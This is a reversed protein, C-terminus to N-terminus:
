PPSKFNTNENDLIIRTKERVIDALETLEDTKKQLRDFEDSAKKLEEDSM